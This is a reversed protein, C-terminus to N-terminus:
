GDCETVREAASTRERTLGDVAADAFLSAASVPTERKGRAARGAM